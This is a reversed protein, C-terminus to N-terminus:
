KIIIYSFTDGVYQYTIEQRSSVFNGLDDYEEFTMEKVDYLTYQVKYTGSVLDEGMEYMFDFFVSNTQESNTVSEIQGTTLAVYENPLLTLDNPNVNILETEIYDKMDVVEYELSTASNYMRRLMKVTIYPNELGSKYELNVSVKNDTESIYGTDPELVHGTAMDVITENEPITSNLGYINDIVTLTVEESDSVEM